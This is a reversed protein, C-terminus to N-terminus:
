GVGRIATGGGFEGGSTGADCSGASTARMRGLFFTAQSGQRSIPQSLNRGDHGRRRKGARRRLQDLDLDLLQEFCQHLIYLTDILLVLIDV